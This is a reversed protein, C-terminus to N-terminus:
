RIISQDHLVIADNIRQETVVRLGTVVELMVITIDVTLAAFQLLV